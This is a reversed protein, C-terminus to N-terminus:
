SNIRNHTAVAIEHWDAFEELSMADMLDPTWGGGMIINLEVWATM